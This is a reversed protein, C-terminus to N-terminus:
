FNKSCKCYCTKQCEGEISICLLITITILVAFNNATRILRVFEPVVPEDVKASTYVSGKARLKIELNATYCYLCVNTLPDSRGNTKTDTVATNLVSKINLVGNCVVSVSLRIKELVILPILVKNVYIKHPVSEVRDPTVFLGANPIKNRVALGTVEPSTLCVLVLPTKTCTQDVRETKSLVYAEEEIKVEDNCPGSHVANGSVLVSESTHSGEGTTKSEIKALGTEYAVSRYSRCYNRKRESKILVVSKLIAYVSKLSLVSSKLVLNSSKLVSSGLNNVTVHHNCARCSEVEVAVRSLKRYALLSVEIEVDLVNKSLCAILNSNVAVSVLVGTVVPDVGSDGAFTCLNNLVVDYTLTDVSVANLNNVLAVLVILETIRELEVTANNDFLM